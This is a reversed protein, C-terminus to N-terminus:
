YPTITTPSNLLGLSIQELGVGTAMAVFIEFNQCLIPLLEAQIPSVIGMGAGLPNDSDTFKLTCSFNTATGHYSPDALKIADKM